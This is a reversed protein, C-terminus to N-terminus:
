HAAFQARADHVFLARIKDWFAGGLVFLSSVLFVDGVIALVIRNAEHFPVLDGVYPTLWGFLLPTTFLVLGLTYRTRGVTEPPGYRKLAAFLKGKLYDFGAKGMIAVAILMFLEAIGLVLLGSLAAKWGPTMTSATVVPVLVPSLFGVVLVGGGLALRGAPPQKQDPKGANSM